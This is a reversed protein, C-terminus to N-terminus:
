LFDAGNALYDRIAQVNEYTTQTTFHQDWYTGRAEHTWGDLLSRGLQGLVLPNASDIGKVNDKFTCRIDDEFNISMGLLHIHDIRGGAIFNLYDVVPARSGFDNSMWRPVGWVPNLSHYLDWMIDICHMIDNQTRGQPVLMIQQTIEGGSLEILERMNAAVMQLTRSKEHLVDPMVICQADVTHAADLLEQGVMPVGLEVTSNDMIIFPHPDISSIFDTYDERNALVDHALLLIYDGLLGRNHLDKLIPLPAVPAFKANSPVTNNFQTEAM